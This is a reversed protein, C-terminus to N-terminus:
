AKFVILGLFVLSIFRALVLYNTAVLIFPSALGLVCLFLVTKNRHLKGIKILVWMSIVAYVRHIHDFWQGSYFAYAPNFLGLKGYVFVPIEWLDSAIFVMLMSMALIKNPEKSNLKKTLTIIYLLTFFAYINIYTPFKPIEIPFLTSYVTLTALSFSAFLLTNKGIKMQNIILAYVPFLIPITGLIENLLDKYRWGLFSCYRKSEM